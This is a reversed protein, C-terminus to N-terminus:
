GFALKVFEEGIEAVIVSFLGVVDGQPQKQLILSNIGRGKSRCFLTSNRGNSPESTADLSLLSGDCSNPM